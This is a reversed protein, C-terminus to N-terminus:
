FDLVPCKAVSHRGIIRSNMGMPTVGVMVEFSNPAAYRSQNIPYSYSFGATLNQLIRIQLFGSVFSTNRLGLGAGVRNAYYFMANVDLVPLSFIPLNLAFSPMLLLKDWLPIKKGYDFFLSPQLRSPSGIKRGKFDQLKFVSIQRISADMFFTKSAYRIGPIIDPYLFLSEATKYVAPDNPDFGYFARTYKRIGAYVGFSIIHDRRLLLHFTYNAYIGENAFLGSQDNDAYVGVNQWHRYSRPQRITYSFNLFSQVPPNSFGIWQKNLGFTYLYKQNIDTGSAAPNMGAKNFIYQSYMIPQQAKGLSCICIIIYLYWRKM